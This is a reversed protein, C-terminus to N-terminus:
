AYYAAEAQQRVATAAEVTDFRGLNLRKGGVKIGALFKRRRPDWSVGRVRTVNNRNAGHARHRINQQHTVARLNERCNDLTDGNIHDVVLGAPDGMIQRAMAILAGGQQGRPRRVAYAHPPKGTVCWKFRALEEYDEDSVKAEFGKTLPITKM